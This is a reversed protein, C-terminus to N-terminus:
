RAHLFRFSRALALLYLALGIYVPALHIFDTYGVHQHVWLTVAFGPTGAILLTWWLWAAGRRYGWLASLLVAVGDSALAGGFGARDHAVLSILRASVARLDHSTAHLFTLDQPVFVSTIGVGSITLGALILGFGTAVFLLQGALGSRWAADNDLDPVYGTGETRPRGRLGLLFMILLLAAVTAHLPDFYGYGLFLMFSAFGLSGSALLVDWAWADGRRLPGLALGMYMVGISLLTGALTLRDHTLFALLHANSQALQDRTLGVFAEDYPLVVSTLGVQGVLLGGTVMGGALLAMWPWGPSAAFGTRTHSAAAASGAPGTPVLAEHVRQAFGPGHFVFAARSAVLDAGTQLLNVADRPTHAGGAVIVFPPQFRTRTWGVRTLIQNLNGPESIETTGERRTDGVVVGAVRAARALELTQGYLPEPLELPLALLVPRPAAATVLHAFHASLSSRPERLLLADEIEVTFADSVDRLQRILSAHDDTVRALSAGPTHALRVLRPIGSTRPRDLNALVTEGAAGSLRAQVRLTETAACRESTVDQGASEGVPGLEIFGLGFTELGALAQGAVDVGAAMGVPARFELGLHRRRLSSHPRLRGVGELIVRGWPQRGVDGVVRLTLARAQEAPLLFLAGRLLPRYSWDPM